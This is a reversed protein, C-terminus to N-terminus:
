EYYILFDAIRAVQDTELDYAQDFLNELRSDLITIDDAAGRYRKLATSLADALQRRQATSDAILTFQVRSQFKNGDATLASDFPVTSILQYVIAPHATGDPLTNAYIRNSVLSTVAVEAKLRTVVGSEISM